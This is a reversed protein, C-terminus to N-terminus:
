YIRPPGTPHVRTCTDDFFAGVPLKELKDFNNWLWKGSTRHAIIKGRQDKLVIIYESYKRGMSENYMTYKMVESKRKGHFEHSCDNDVGPTFRSVGRDMLFYKDQDIVQKGVAYYEVTLEHGYKERGKQKVRAGFQWQLISPIVAGRVNKVEIFRPKSSKLFDLEFEPPFALQLYNHDAPCLRNLELKVNDGEPTEIFVSDGLRSVVQGVVVSKGDRSTWTHMDPNNQNEPMDEEADASAASDKSPSGNNSSKAAYDRFVPGNTPCAEGPVLLEYIADLEHHTLKETKFIPLLPGNQPSRPYEAGEEEVALMASFSGGPIEGIIVEMDLAVGPQLDIWKGIEAKRQGLFYQMSGAASNHYDSLIDRFSGHGSDSVSGDVVIEGDVRVLIIDDAQAWFRFRGGDPHALKGKYHAVWAYGPMDPEGFAAPAMTSPMTPFMFHKTYLRVPSKYYKDLVSQDWDERTFQSVAYLIEMTQLLGTPAGSSKRKLDYLTGVFDNGITNESGFITLDAITPMDLVEGFGVGSFLGEGFGELDPLQIEPMQKTKVKAVIRSSPKPNSTKRVKVKPKKLKMRPREVRPPPEFEAEPKHVVSFVVFLGAVFFATGHFLLSV